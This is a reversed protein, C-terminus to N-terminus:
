PSRGGALATRANHAAFPALRGDAVAPSFQAAAKRVASQRLAPLIGAPDNVVLCEALVDDRVFGHGALYELLTLLPQWFGDFNAILIPKTHQGLKHWTIVEALEEITGVGGPLAVFADARDFMARKRSHMDPVTMIEHPMSLMTMRPALFSPIVALVEGGARAAASAVAGMLGADGGGYVLRIGERAIAKGLMTAASVFNPNLGNSAGCFVCITRLDGTDHGNPGTLNALGLHTSIRM